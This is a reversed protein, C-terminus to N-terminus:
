KDKDKDIGSVVGAEADTLSGDKWALNMATCKIKANCIFQTTRTITNGAVYLVVGWFLLHMTDMTMVGKTAWIVYCAFAAVIIFRSGTLGSHELLAKPDQEKNGSLLATLADRLAM